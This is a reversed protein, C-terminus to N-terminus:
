LQRQECSITYNHDNENYYLRLLICWGLIIIDNKRSPIEKAFTGTDSYPPKANLMEHVTIPSGETGIHFYKKQKFRINVFAVQRYRDGVQYGWIWRPERYKALGM